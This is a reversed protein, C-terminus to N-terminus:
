QKDLLQQQKARLLQLTEIIQRQNDLSIKQRREFEDIRDYLQHIQRVARDRDELSQRSLNEGQIFNGLGSIGVLLLTGLQVLQNGSGALAGLVHAVGNKPGQNEGTSM